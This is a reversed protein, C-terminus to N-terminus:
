RSDPIHLRWRRDRLRTECHAALWHHNIDHPADPNDDVDRWEIADHTTERTGRLRNM